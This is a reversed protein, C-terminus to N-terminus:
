LHVRKHLSPLAFATDFEDRRYSQLLPTALTVRSIDFDGGFFQDLSYKRVILLFVWMLIWCNEDPGTPISASGSCAQYLKSQATTPSDISPACRTFCTIYQEFDTVDVVSV